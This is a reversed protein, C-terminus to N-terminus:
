WGMARAAVECLTAERSGLRGRPGAKETGAASVAGLQWSNGAMQIRWDSKWRVVCGIRRAVLGNCLM